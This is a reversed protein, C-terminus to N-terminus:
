VFTASQGGGGGGGWKEYRVQLSSCGGRQFGPYAVTMMILVSELGCGAIYAHVYIPAIIMIPHRNTALQPQLKALLNSVVM